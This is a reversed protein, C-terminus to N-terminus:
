GHKGKKNNRKDREAEAASMYQYDRYAAVHGAQNFGDLDCFAEYTYGAWKAVLRREFELTFTIGSRPTVYRRVPV